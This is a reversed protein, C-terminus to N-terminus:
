IAAPPTDSAHSPLPSQSGLSIGSSQGQGELRDSPKPKRYARYEALTCPASSNTRRDRSDCPSPPPELALQCPEQDPPPSPETRTDPLDQDTESPSSTLSPVPYDAGDLGLFIHASGSVGNISDAIRWYNIKPSDSLVLDVFEEHVTFRTVRDYDYQTRRKLSANNTNTYHRIEKLICCGPTITFEHRKMFEKTRFPQLEFDQYASLRTLVLHVHLPTMYCANAIERITMPREAIQRIMYKVNPMSPGEGPLPRKSQVPHNRLPFGAEDARCLAVASTDKFNLLDTISKLDLYNDIVSDYAIKALMRAKPDPRVRGDVIKWGVPMKNWFIPTGREYTKIGEIDGLRILMEQYRKSVLSVNRRDSIIEEFGPTLTKVTIGCSKFTLLLRRMVRTSTFIREPTDVYLEDGRSLRMMCTFGGPRATFPVLIEQGTDSYWNAQKFKDGLYGILRERQVKLPIGLISRKNGVVCDCGYCIIGM